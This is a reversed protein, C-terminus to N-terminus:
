YISHRQKNFRTEKRSLPEVSPLYLTVRLGSRDPAVINALIISGSLGEVIRRVISLGLGTGDGSARNGRYFPEFVRDLEAADIGPGTDEVCLITRDAECFVSIDICGGEPTYHLANDVLNRVMTSMAVPDAQLVLSEIRQFGLDIRRAQALPLLDSVVEKAIHTLDACRGDTGRYNEYRALTLLQEALHAIRWIGAKLASVRDLSERPLEVRGLNEAQVSLATIPTRLEHAADAVFRREREFMNSIRNLLRNISQVFPRLESPMGDLPLSALHDSDKADLQAALQSVPRFSERIVVAVLLMMCPILAALPLLARLASDRAVEDRYATPQSVAVKSGDPGQM